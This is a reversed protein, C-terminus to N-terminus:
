PVGLASGVDFTQRMAKEEHCWCLRMFAARRADLFNKEENTLRRLSASLLFLEVRETESESNIRNTRLRSENCKERPTVEFPTRSFSELTVFFLKVILLVRDTIAWILTARTIQSLHALLFDAQNKPSHFRSFDWSRSRIRTLYLFNIKKGRQEAEEDGSNENKTKSKQPALFNWSCRTARLDWSRRLRLAATHWKIMIVGRETNGPSGNAEALLSSFRRCLRVSQFLKKKCGTPLTFFDLSEGTKKPILRIIWIELWTVSQPFNEHHAQSQTPTSQLVISFFLTEREEQSHTCSFQFHLRFVSM